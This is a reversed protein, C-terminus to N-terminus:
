RRKPLRFWKRIEGRRYRADMADATAALLDAWEEATRSGTVKTVLYPCQELKRVGFSRAFPKIVGLSLAFPALNFFYDPDTKQLRSLDESAVRRLYQRLGLIKGADHLGVDSRRGGYAAFYGLFFQGLTTLTPIMWEGCLVGLLIWILVCVLGIYVRTKGRLHTRYAIEHIQWASVAGFISLVVSLLIQLASVTTMNMAVCIGCFIQSGCLLTRFVKMNGSNSKVLDKEGPIVSFVKRSLKTYAVGTADVMRRSGFLQKYVKVEFPSRENGMDMRKHLMVRHGDLHILIYGMQAWNICMMTLDCGALTLHCGMEGSTVGEPPSVTRKRILPKTRLFILWYVMAVGACILLPTLEPNGVRRYTSITPFMEQPVVMLMTVTDHDHLQAISNGSIMRGDITYTLDSEISSQRYISTFDPHYRVDNPLNIIFGLYDVPYSFGSVLPLSLQLYPKDDPTVAVGVAKPIVFDFNVTFDGVMGGTARTVDVQIVNGVKNTRASSSNMTINTANGPLPFTLADDPSELHLMVSMSVQCNGEADVNIYSDVRTAASEASASVPLLAFLALCLMLGTLIRKM